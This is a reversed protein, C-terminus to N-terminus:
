NNLGFRLELLDLHATSMKGLICTHLQYQLPSLVYCESVGGKEQKFKNYIDFGFQIYTELLNRFLM